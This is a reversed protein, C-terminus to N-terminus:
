SALERLAAQVTEADSYHRRVGRIEQYAEHGKGAVVVVDGRSAMAITERVARARDAIVMCKGGAGEAIDAIIALPDEGRPNDSTIIASDACRAAIRGMQARKGRDRDGGCGFVCYLKRARAPKRLVAPRMIERMTLLINELADPTHAYDVVVLPNAGGGYREARGLVPQMGQAALVADRLGVNSALLAALTALLNSANFRGLLHSKVHTRGWPTSVDFSVGNVDAVLKSGRIRAIHRHMHGSVGFGYGLVLTSAPYERAALKTGFADDLNLVVAKLSEWRFLRAKADRYGRMNGHYDLHDRTLNTFVAVDFNVGGVRGQALGHSSVEMSVARAGKREWDRLQGHLSAADPTTNAGAVLADPFGNGLTGAVACTRGTAGLARAIWLSCSTKGNTGTVGVMWLRSSPRGYIHSAIEGIRQRLNPIAMCMTGLPYQGKFDIAEVLFSAAGNRAAQAIFERGDRIEGPYAVFTDGSRVARSDSTLHRIGLADVASWDINSTARAGNESKVGCKM